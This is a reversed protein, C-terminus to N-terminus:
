QAASAGRVPAPRQRQLGQALAALGVASYVLFFPWGMFAYRPEVHFFTHFLSLCLVPIWLACQGALRRREGWLGAACLVFMALWQAPGYLFMYPLGLGSDYPGWFHAMRVPWRLVFAYLPVRGYERMGEHFYAVDTAATADAVTMGQAHLATVRREREVTIPLYAAGELDYTLRGQWQLASIYVPWGPPSGVSLRHQVVSNRAVWPALVAACALAATAMQRVSARGVLLLGMGLGIPLLVLTPRVLYAVGGAAGFALAWKWGNIRSAAWVTAVAAATALTEPMHYLPSLVLPLFTACLVAALLAIGESFYLAALEYLLMAALLHVAFQVVKAARIGGGAKYVAALFLPYGPTRLTSPACDSELSYCGRTAVNRALTDYDHSDGGMRSGPQFRPLLLAAELAVILFLLAYARRRRRPRALLAPNALSEM